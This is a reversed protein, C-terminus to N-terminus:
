YSYTTHCAHSCLFTLEEQEDEEYEDEYKEYGDSQDRDNWIRRGFGRGRGRFGAVLGMEFGDQLFHEILHWM